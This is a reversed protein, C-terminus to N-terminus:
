GLPIQSHIDFSQINLGNVDSAYAHDSLCLIIIIQTGLIYERAIVYRTTRLSDGFDKPM